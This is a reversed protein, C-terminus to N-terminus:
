HVWQEKRVPELNDFSPLPTARPPSGADTAAYTRCRDRFPHGLFPRRLMWSMLNVDERLFRCTSSSCWFFGVATASTACGPLQLSGRLNLSGSIKRWVGLWQLFHWSRHLRNKKVNWLTCTDEPLFLPFTPHLYSADREAVPFLLGALLTKVRSGHLDSRGLWRCLGDGSCSKNPILEALRFSIMHICFHCGGWTFLLPWCSVVVRVDDPLHLSNKTVASHVVVVWIELAHAFSFYVEFFFLSFLYCYFSVPLCVLSPPLRCYKYRQFINWKKKKSM